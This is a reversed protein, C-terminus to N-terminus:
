MCRWQSYTITRQADSAVDTGFGLYPPASLTSGYEQLIQTMFVTYGWCTGTPDDGYNCKGLIYYISAKWMGNTTWFIGSGGGGGVPCDPPTPPPNLCNGHSCPTLLYTDCDVYHGSTCRVYGVATTVGDCATVTIEAMGCASGTTHLTNTLGTTTANELSFGTGATIAWSYPSGKTGNSDSIAISVSNPRVVSNASEDQDWAIGTGDCQGLCHSISMNYHRGTVKVTAGNHQFTAQMIVDFTIWFTEGEPCEACLTNGSLSFSCGAPISHIRYGTIPWGCHINSCHEEGYGYCAGLLDCLFRVTWPNYGGEGFPNEGPVFPTDFDYDWPFGPYADSLYEMEEYDDERYPKKFESQAYLADNQNFAPKRSGVGMQKAYPANDVYLRRGYDQNSIFRSDPSGM